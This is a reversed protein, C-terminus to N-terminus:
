TLSLVMCLTFDGSRYPGFSECETFGARSYLAHADAFVPDRGTELGLTAYGRARAESILHTLIASGAGKGRWHDAARMSKIEGTQADLQKLAGFAALEGQCRLAFFTVDNERLRDPGMVHCADDPSCSRLERQHQDLLTLVDDAVLDDRAIVFGAM